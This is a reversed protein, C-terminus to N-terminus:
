KNNNDNSEDPRARIQRVQGHVNDYPQSDQGGGLLHIMRGRM